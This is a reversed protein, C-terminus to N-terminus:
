FSFIIFQFAFLIPSVKSPIRRNHFVSGLPEAQSQNFSPNSHVYISYLGENGKFFVDWFEALLVPGRTLFLFAVKPTMKFPIQQIRPEMSARWLLEEDEMEHRIDPPKLYEKMGTSLNSVLPTEQEREQQRQLQQQQPPLPNMSHKSRFSSSSSFQTINLNFSFNKLSFSVIIGFTFGGAFLVFFLLLNLLHLQAKFVRSFSNSYVNSNSNSNHNHNQNQNQNKM